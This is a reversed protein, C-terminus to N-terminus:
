SQRVPNSGEHIVANLYPLTAITTHVIEEASNFLPRIEGCLRDWSERNALLHYTIFTLATATTDSSATRYM